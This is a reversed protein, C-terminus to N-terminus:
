HARGKCGPHTCRCDIDPTTKVAECQASCYDSGQAATCSCAAVRFFLTTRMQEIQEQAM